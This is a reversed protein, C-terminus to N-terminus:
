YINTLKLVRDSDGEIIGKSIENLNPPKMGLFSLHECPESGQQGKTSPESGMLQTPYFFTLTKPYELSKVSNM